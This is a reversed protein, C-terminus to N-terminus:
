NIEKEAKNPYCADSENASLTPRDKAAAQGALEMEAQKTISYAMKKKARKKERWALRKVVGAQPAKVNEIAM